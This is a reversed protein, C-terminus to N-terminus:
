RHFWPHQGTRAVPPESGHDQRIRNKLGAVASVCFYFRWTAVYSADRMAM